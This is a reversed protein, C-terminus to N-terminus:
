PKKWGAFPSACQRLNRELRSCDPYYFWCQLDGTLYDLFFVGESDDDIPGTAIAM